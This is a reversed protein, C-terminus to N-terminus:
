LWAFYKRWRKDNPGLCSFLMHVLHDLIVKFAVLDFTRCIHVVLVRSDWIESWKQEVTARKGSLQAPSVSIKSFCDSFTPFGLHLKTLVMSLVLGPYTQFSKTAIQLLLRKFNENGTPGM